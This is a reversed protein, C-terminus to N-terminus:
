RVKRIIRFGQTPPPTDQYIAAIDEPSGVLPNDRVGAKDLDEQTVQDLDAQTIQDKSGFINEHNLGYNNVVKGLDKRTEDVTKRSAKFLSNAQSKFDKRQKDTLREGSILKNYINVVREPVGAANQANAFEGERVVSGPDLMKMFGFILALDGVANEEAAEVRRYSELVDQAVSTKKTYEDRLKKEADFIKERPIIGGGINKSSELNVIAQQTEIDLKRNQSLIKNIQARKLGADIGKNIIDQKMAKIELPQLEQKRASEELTSYNDAFKDDVANLAMGLSTEAASPNDKITDSLMGWFQANSADGAGEYLRAQEEIFNTAQEINGSKVASLAQYGTRKLNNQKDESLMNWASKSAEVLDPRVISLNAYDQVTKNPKSIIDNLYQMSRQQQEFAQQQQQQQLQRQQLQFQRDQQYNRLQLGQAYADQVQKYPDPRGRFLMGYDVVM